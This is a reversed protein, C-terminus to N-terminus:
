RRGGAEVKVREVIAAVLKYAYGSYPEGLSVTLFAEGLEYRGDPMALYAREYEPDTVRLIYECGAHRFRARVVRKLDGFAAGPVHVQLIVGGVHIFKLSDTLTEAQEIPVRDNLGHYTAYENIWLTEPRQELTLLKGWEALGVKRWYYGPDLLWNERQFSHSQPHLLPVCVVDLVHPDSGDKYQRERESVECNPRNSVPRIWDGSGDDVIGAVCRGSLKRSNALCVLTKITTM